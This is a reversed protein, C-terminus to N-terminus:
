AGYQYILSEWATQLDKLSLANKMEDNFKQYVDQYNNQSLNEVIGIAEFELNLEEQQKENNEEEDICGSFGVGLILIIFITSLVYKKMFVEGKIKNIKM